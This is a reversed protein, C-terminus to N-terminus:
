LDACRPKCIGIFPASIDWGWIGRLFMDRLHVIKIVTTNSAKHCIENINRSLLMLLHMEEFCIWVTANRDVFKGGVTM